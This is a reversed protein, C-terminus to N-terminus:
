PLWDVAQAEAWERWGEGPWRDVVLRAQLGYERGVEVEPTLFFFDWAPNGSGGGSPSMAFRLPQECRFLLLYTWERWRGCYYPRAWRVPAVSTFLKGRLSESTPVVLNDDPGRVSSAEGHRASAFRVWEESQGAAEARFHLANEEPAAMYSAWFVGMLGGHFVPCRPVCRFEMELANPPRATFTTVSEVGWFPTAAQRLQASGAEAGPELTMPAHRPEFFIEPSGNQWGDFYHELNLGALGPVFMSDAAGTPVLSWVGNYGARHAGQATNDGLRCRFTSTALDIYNVCNRM